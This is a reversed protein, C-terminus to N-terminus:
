NRVYIIYILPTTKVQRCLWPLDDRNKSFSTPYLVRILHQVIGQPKVPYHM